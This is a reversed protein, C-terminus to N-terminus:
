FFPLGSKKTTEMNDKVIKSILEREQQSLCMADDYSLGGRMYWTMRLADDKFAKSEKDFQDLLGV